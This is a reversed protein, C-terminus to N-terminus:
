VKLVNFDFKKLVRGDEEIRIQYTGQLPFVVGRMTSTFVIHGNVESKPIQVPVQISAAFPAGKDDLFHLSVMKAGVETKPVFLKIAFTIDTIWPFSKAAVNDYTGVITLRGNYNFAGDCLAFLEYKM